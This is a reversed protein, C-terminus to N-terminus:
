ASLLIRWQAKRRASCSWLSRKCQTMPSATVTIHRLASTLRERQAEDLDSGVIFMLTTLDDSLPFLSGHTAAHTAHWNDMTEQANTDLALQNRGTREVNVRAIDAQHQSERQRETMSSLPLMDMWSDKVRKLLLDFKGIWDVM